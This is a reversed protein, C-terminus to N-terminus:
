NVSASSEETFLTEATFESFTDFTGNSITFRGERDDRTAYVTDGERVMSLVVPKSDVQVTFRLKSVETGSESALNESALTEGV